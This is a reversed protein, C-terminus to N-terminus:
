GTSYCSGSGSGSDALVHTGDLPILPVRRYQELEGEAKDKDRHDKNRFKVVILTIFVLFITFVILAILGVISVATMDLPKESRSSILFNLTQLCVSQITKNNLCPLSM